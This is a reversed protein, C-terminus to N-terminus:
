LPVCQLMGAVWITAWEEADRYEAPLSSTQAVRRVQAMSKDIEDTAACSNMLLREIAFSLSPAM